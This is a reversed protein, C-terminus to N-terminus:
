ASRRNRQSLREVFRLGPKEITLHAVLDFAHLRDPKEFRKIVNLAVGEEGAEETPRQVREIKKQQREHQHWDPM